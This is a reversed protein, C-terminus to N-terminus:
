YIFPIFRKTHKSYYEFSKGYKQHLYEDLKPINYFVFFCFLFIPISISYWNRTIIAYACVWLFDGFYNIHMSYRFFGKTYLRGKSAPDKKWRARLIEGGTNLISGIFFLIIASFDIWDIPKGVPLVFLAYGIYYLAFAFPVSVSEEWPIKRKLLFFMMFAIRFFVIINFAFIVERRGTGNTANHIHLKDQIFNGTSGFLIRYSFYIFAIELLHIIIKQPISKSKQGYLEM